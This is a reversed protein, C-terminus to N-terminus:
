SRTLRALTAEMRAMVEQIRAPNMGDPHPPAFQGSDNDWYRGAPNAFADDLAARVLIGAGIGIDNGAMGFGERVMKTALLSGPNVAIVSPGESGLTEALYRSWMTIALKSQAYAEMDPLEMGGDLAATSVPAQAASSLNVIRGASSLNPILRQTLLWPALTNVAFRVDLGEATRPTSTKFVGANNILVDIAPHTGATQEAFAAVARMDSLDGVVGSASAAGASRAEALVADLKDPNRGHLILDHGLASLQKTTERGIGDTAGTLLITTM